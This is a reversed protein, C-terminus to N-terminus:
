SAMSPSAQEESPGSAQSSEGASTGTVSEHLEEATMHYTSGDPYFYVLGGKRHDSEIRNWGNPRM